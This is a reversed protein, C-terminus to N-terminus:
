GSAGVTIIEIVPISVSSSPTLTGFVGQDVDNLWWRLEWRTTSVLTFAGDDDWRSPYRFTYKCSSASEPLGARWVKGPGDCTVDRGGDFWVGEFRVGDDDASWEVEVPRAEVAVSLASGDARDGIPAWDGEVWLWTPLNVVSSDPPAMAIAPPAPTLGATLFDRLEVPDPPDPLELVTGNTVSRGGFNCSYRFVGYSEALNFHPRMAAVDALTLRYVLEFTVTNGPEFGVHPDGPRNILADCYQAWEAREVDEGSGSGPNPSGDRRCKREVTVTGANGSIDASGSTTCGLVVGSPVVALAGAVVTVAVLIRLKM